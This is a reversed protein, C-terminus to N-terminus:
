APVQRGPKFYIRSEVISFDGTGSNIGEISLFHSSGRMIRRSSRRNVDFLLTEKLVGDHYVNVTLTSAGLPNAVIELFGYNKMQFRLSPDLFSLDTEVTRYAGTYAVGNKLRTAQDMKWVKGADDGFMPREIGDTGRRLFHSESNDRFSYSFKVKGGAGVDSFDFMLRANNVASGAKPVSFIALGKHEFWVSTVQNLRSLNINDRIWKKIKLAESLDSGTVGGTTLASLLHFSGGSSLFLVDGGLIPLAAYPSEAVGVADTLQNVSWNISRLDTVEAWFIGVPFKFLLMLGKAALGAALRQGVGPYIPLTGATAKIFDEHDEPGSGYVRHPDSLNGFAWFRSGQVLGGLPQNTGSWDSPPNGIVTATAGDAALVRPSDVGNLYVLKRSRGGSEAGAPEFKGRATTSLLTALTVNDLDGNVEKYLKGDLAATVIRQVTPTPWWDFGAVIKPTGVIGATDFPDAGPEKRWVGDEMVIGEARQLDTAPIRTLNLDLNLGGLGAPISGVLGGYSM